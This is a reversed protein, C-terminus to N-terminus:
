SNHRYKLVPNISVPELIFFLLKFPITKDGRDTVLYKKVKSHLLLSFNHHCKKVPSGPLSQKGYPLDILNYNNNLIIIQLDLAM